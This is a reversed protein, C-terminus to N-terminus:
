FFMSVIKFADEPENACSSCYTGVGNVPGEYGLLFSKKYTKDESTMILKENKKDKLIYYIKNFKPIRVVLAPKKDVDKVSLIELKYGKENKKYSYSITHESTKSNVEFVLKEWEPNNYDGVMFFAHTKVENQSFGQFCVYVSFLLVLTIKPLLTKM